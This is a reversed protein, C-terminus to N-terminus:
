IPLGPAKSLMGCLSKWSWREWYDREPLYTQLAKLLPLEIVLANCSAGPQVDVDEDEQKAGTEELHRSSMTFGFMDRLIRHRPGSSGLNVGAGIANPIPHSVATNTSGPDTTTTGTGGPKAITSVASTTIATTIAASNANAVTVPKRATAIQRVVLTLEVTLENLPSGCQKKQKDWSCGKWLFTKSDSFESDEHECSKEEQFISCSCFDDIYEMENTQTVNWKLYELVVGKTTKRVTGGSETASIQPVFSFLLFCTIFM